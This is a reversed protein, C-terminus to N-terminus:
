LAEAVVCIVDDVIEVSYTKTKVRPSDAWAGDSLRFRWAHWPCTVCGNEVHGGALSAGAHPCCDDLAFYGGDAHFVAVFREGVRVVKAEGNKLTGVRAVPIRESM